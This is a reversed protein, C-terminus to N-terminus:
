IKQQHKLIRYESEHEPLMTRFFLDFFKEVGVSESVRCNKPLKWADVTDALCEGRTLESTSIRVNCLNWEIIDPDAFAEMALLDHPVAGLIRDYTYYYNMYVPYMALMIDTLPNRHQRLFEMHNPSLIVQETVNLNVMWINIGSEYVVAAADPDAWYNFESVPSMNGRLIGGGMSFIGKLRKMTEPDEQLALAINTLPGLAVISLSEPPNNRLTELIFECATGAGAKRGAEPLGSNGFGDSGHWESSFEISVRLPKESGRYVPIARGAYDTLRLANRTGLDVHTNGSVTTIGLIDIDKRNMAFLMAYADDIGPDTDIIIKKTQSMM